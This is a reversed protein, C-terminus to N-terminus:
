ARSIEAAYTWAGDTDWGSLRITVQIEIGERTLASMAMTKLPTPPKKLAVLAKFGAWHRARFREPTIIVVEKGIAEEQTFHFMLAAGQSWSQIIGESGCTIIAVASKAASEMRGMKERLVVIEEQLRETTDLSERHHRLGDRIQQVLERIQKEQRAMVQEQAKLDLDRLGVAKTARWAKWFVFGVGV